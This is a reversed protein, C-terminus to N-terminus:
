MDDYTAQGERWFAAMTLVMTNSMGALSAAHTSSLTYFNTHARCITIKMHLMERAVDNLIRM